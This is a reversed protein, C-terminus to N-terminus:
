TERDNNIDIIRVSQLKDKITFGYKEPSGSSSNFLCKLGKSYQSVRAACLQWM